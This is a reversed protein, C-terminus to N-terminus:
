AAKDHSVLKTLPGPFSILPLRSTFAGLAELDRRRMVDSMVQSWMHTNYLATLMDPRLIENCGQKLLMKASSKYKRQEHLSCHLVFSVQSSPFSCLEIDQDGRLSSIYACVSQARVHIHPHLCGFANFHWAPHRSIQLQGDVARTFPSYYLWDWWFQRISFTVDNFYFFVTLLEIKKEETLKNRQKQTQVKIWVKCSCNVCLGEQLIFPTLVWSHM